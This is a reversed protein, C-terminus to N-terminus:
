HRSHALSPPNTPATVTLAEMSAALRSCTAELVEVKKLLGLVDVHAEPAGSASAVDTSSLYLGEGAQASSAVAREVEERTPLRDRGEVCNRFFAEADAQQQAEQVVRLLQRLQEEQWPELVGTSPSARFRQTADTWDQRERRLRSIHRALACAYFLAKLRRGVGARAESHLRHFRWATQIVRASDGRVVRSLRHCRMLVYMNHENADETLSGHVVVVLYAILLFSVVWALAGVLRGATTAPTVDGYGVTSLAQFAYWCGDQLSVQEARAFMCSLAAWSVVTALSAVKAKRYVLATRVTFAPTLPFATVATMARCFFRYVYAANHIYVVVAYLRVFIFYNLLEFFPRWFFILPPTQICWLLIELLMQLLFPSTFINRHDKYFVNTLGTYQAKISYVRLIILVAAASVVLITWEVVATAPLLSLVFVIIALLAQVGRLWRHYAALLELSAIGNTVVLPASQLSVDIYLEDRLLHKVRTGLLRPGLTVARTKRRLLNLLGRKARRRPSTQTANLNLEM